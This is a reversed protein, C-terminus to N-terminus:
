MPVEIGNVFLRDTVKGIKKLTAHMPCRAHTTMVIKRVEDSPETSTVRTEVVFDVFAPEAESFEAQGQRDWHGRVSTELSHFGLGHLTAYRAFTVNECFGVSAMFYQLPGPGLNTGGSDKPEDSILHHDAIRAESTQDGILTSDVRVAGLTQKQDAIEELQKLWEEAYPKFAPSVKTV